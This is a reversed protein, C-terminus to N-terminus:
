VNDKIISGIEMSSINSALFRIASVIVRVGRTLSSTSSAGV